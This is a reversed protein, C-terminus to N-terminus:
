SRGDVGPWPLPGDRLQVPPDVTADVLASPASDGASGAGAPHFWGDVVDGFRAVAADLDLAPEGAARNVSTSVLPCGAALVLERLRRVAPIRVAVTGRGATVGDPVDRRALLIVSFPGPWCRELLRRRGPEPAEAVAQVQELSGALVLLPKGAPRGKLEAIREIAAPRDARCHFGPLTDTAILLVGGAELLRAADEFSVSGRDSNM